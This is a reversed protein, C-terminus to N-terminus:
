LAAEASMAVAGTPGFAALALTDGDRRAALTLTEGCFAPAQGRFAFRTLRNPGILRAAHDLLLSATLPGHVVLGPYHEVDRAYPLDYHIRHANFTLASYRLLLPEGPLLARHHPWDGPDLAAAGARPAHFAPPTDSAARYVISQEEHVCATGDALTDHAVTVFLLEGSAGSKATIGTVTSTRIVGAGVPLPALFAVKSSAWMRRPLPIPPLFSDERRQPHGDSGLDATPADPLCLCWHLGQPAHGDAVPTDITARWRDILGPTVVDERRESRGIWGQWDAAAGPNAPAM